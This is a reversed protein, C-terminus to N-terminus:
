LIKINFWEEVTMVEPIKEYLSEFHIQLGEFQTGSYNNRKRKQEEQKMKLEAIVEERTLETELPYSVEVDFQDYEETCILVFRNM